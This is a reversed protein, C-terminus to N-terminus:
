YKQRCRMAYLFLLIAPILLFNFPRTLMEARFLLLQSTTLAMCLIIRINFRQQPSTAGVQVDGWLDMVMCSELVQVAVMCLWFLVLCGKEM